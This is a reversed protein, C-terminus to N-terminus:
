LLGVSGCLDRGRDLACVPLQGLADRMRYFSDSSIKSEPVHEGGCLFQFFGDAM